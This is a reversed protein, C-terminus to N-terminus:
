YKNIVFFMYFIYFKNLTFNITQKIFFYNSNAQNLLKTFKKKERYVIINNGYM